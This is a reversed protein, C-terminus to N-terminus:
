VTLEVASLAVVDQIEPVAFRIAEAVGAKLTMASMSCSSCAGHFRVMAVMADTIDEVSVNGGDAELYPRISDIASEVKNILIQKEEALMTM